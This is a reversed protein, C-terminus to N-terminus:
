ELWGWSTRELICQIAGRSVGYNDAIAQQSIGTTERIELVDRATLKAHSHLEGRPMTGHLVKDMENEARTAWRIHRPNVCGAHGQGCTHAAQHNATPPKDHALECMLRSVPRGGMYARGCKLRHFPWILCDDSKYGVHAHVWKILSGRETGRVQVTGHKKQRQYHKQCFGGAKYPNSCGDISCLKRNAVKSGETIPKTLAPHHHSM